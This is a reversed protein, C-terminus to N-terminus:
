RKPPGGLFRGPGYVHNVIYLANEIARKNEEERKPREEEAFKEELAKKTRAEWEMMDAREKKEVRTSYIIGFLAVLLSATVWIAAIMMGADKAFLGAGAGVASSLGLNFLAKGSDSRSM